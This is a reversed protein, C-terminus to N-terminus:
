GCAEIAMLGAWGKRQQSRSRHQQQEEAALGIKYSYATMNSVQAANTSRRVARGYKDLKPKVDGALYRRRVIIDCDWLTTSPHIKERAM